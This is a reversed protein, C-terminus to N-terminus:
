GSPAIGPPCPQSKRHQGRSAPSLAAEVPTRSHHCSPSGSPGLHRGPTRHPCCCTYGGSRSMQPQCLLLHAGEQPLCPGVDEGM